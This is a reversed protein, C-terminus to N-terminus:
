RKISLSGRDTGDVHCFFRVCLRLAAFFIESNCTPCFPAKGAQVIEADEYAGLHGQLCLLRHSM